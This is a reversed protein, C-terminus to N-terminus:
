ENSEEEENEFTIMDWDIEWSAEVYGGNDPLGIAEDMEAIKAANELTDSEVIIHGYMQWSVPIKFKKIKPPIVKNM